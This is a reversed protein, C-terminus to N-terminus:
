VTSTGLCELHLRLKELAKSEIQRVRERTVGLMQGTQDLTFRETGIGFRMKIVEKSREDLYRLADSVREISERDEFIESPQKDRSKCSGSVGSGEFRIQATKKINILVRKTVELRNMLEEDSPVDGDTAVIRQYQRAKWYLHACSHITTSRTSIYYSIARRIHWSAYTSFRLGREPDFMRIADCLGILGEQVFDDVDSKSKGYRLAIRWVLRENSLIMRDRAEINGKAALRALTKEEDGTLLKDKLKETLVIV